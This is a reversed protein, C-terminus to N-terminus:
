GFRGCLLTEEVDARTRNGGGRLLGGGEGLTLTHLPLFHHLNGPGLRLSPILIRIRAARPTRLKKLLGTGLVIQLNVAFYGHILRNRMGSIDVWPVDAHAAKLADSLKTVAEGIIELNRIVADQLFSDGMFDADSREKMYQEIKVIAERIHDLFDADRMASSM